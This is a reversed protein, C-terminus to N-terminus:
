CLLPLFSPFIFWIVLYELDYANKSHNSDKQMSPFYVLDLLLLFRHTNNTGHQWASLPFSFISLPASWCRDFGSGDHIFAAMFTWFNRVLPLWFFLPGSKDGNFKHGCRFTHLSAFTSTNIAFKMVFWVSRAFDPNCQINLTLKM